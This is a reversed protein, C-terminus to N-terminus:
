KREQLNKILQDNNLLVTEWAEVKNKLVQIKNNIRKNEKQIVEIKKKKDM